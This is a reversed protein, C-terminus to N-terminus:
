EHENIKWTIKIEKEQESMISFLVDIGMCFIEIDNLGLKLKYKANDYFLVNETDQTLISLIISKAFTIHKKKIGLFIKNKVISSFSEKGLYYIDKESYGEDLVICPKKITDTDKETSVTCSIQHVGPSTFSCYLSSNNIEIKEEDIKWSFNPKKISNLIFSSEANLHTVTNATIFVPFDILAVPKEEIQKCFKKNVAHCYGISFCGSRKKYLEIIFGKKLLILALDKERYCDHTEMIIHKIANEEPINECIKYESGECDMKLFDIDKKVYTNILTQFSISKIAIPVANFALKSAMSDILAKTTSACAMSYISASEPIILDTDGDYNDVAYNYPFIKNLLGNEKINKQLFSFTEPNPEFAYVTSGLSAAFLSFIGINAGIDVVVDGEKIAYKKTYCRDEWVEKIISSLGAGSPKQPAGYLILKQTM